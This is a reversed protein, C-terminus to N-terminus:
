EWNADFFDHKQDYLRDAVWSPRDNDFAWISDGLEKCDLSELFKEYNPTPKKGGDRVWGQFGEEIADNAYEYFTKELWDAWAEMHQKTDM